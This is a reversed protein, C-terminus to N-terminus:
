YILFVCTIPFFLCIFFLSPSPYHCSIVLKFIPPFGVPVTVNFCIQLFHPFAYITRPFPSCAFIGAPIFHRLYLQHNWFVSSVLPAPTSHGLHLPLSSVLSITGKTLPSGSFHKACLIEMIEMVTLLIARNCHLSHVNLPLFSALLSTFASTYYNM